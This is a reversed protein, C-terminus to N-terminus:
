KMVHIRNLYTLTFKGGALITNPKKGNKDFNIALDITKAIQQKKHHKRINGGGVM